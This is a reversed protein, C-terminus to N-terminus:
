QRQGCPKSYDVFAKLSLLKKVPPPLNLQQISPCLTMNATCRLLHCRTAFVTLQVLSPISDKDLVAGNYVTFKDVDTTKRRIDLLAEMDEDAGLSNEVFRNSFAELEVIDDKINSMDLSYIAFPNACMAAEYEPGNNVVIATKLHEAIFEVSHFGAPILCESAIRSRPLQQTFASLRSFEGGFPLEVRSQELLWSLAKYLYLTSSGFMLEATTRGRSNTVNVDIGQSLLLRLVEIKASNYDTIMPSNPDLNHLDSDYAETNAVAHLPLCGDFDEFTDSCVSPDAGQSILFTLVDVDNGMVAYHFATWGKADTTHIDWGHALLLTYLEVKHGRSVMHGVSLRDDFFDLAYIGAGSTLMLRVIDLQEDADFGETSYNSLGKANQLYSHEVPVVFVSEIPQSTLIWHLPTCTHHNLDIGKDIGKRLLEGNMYNCIYSYFIIPDCKIAGRDFLLHIMNPKYRTVALSLATDERQYGTHRVHTADACAGNDLLYTLIRLDDDSTYEVAICLPHTDLADNRVNMFRIQDTPSIVAPCICELLPFNNDICAFHVLDWIDQGTLHKAIAKRYKLHDCVEKMDKDFCAEIFAAKRAAM